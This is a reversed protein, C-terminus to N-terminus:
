DDAFSGAVLCALAGVAFIAVTLWTPPAAFWVWALSVGLGGTFAGLWFDTKM